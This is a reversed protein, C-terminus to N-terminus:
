WLSLFNGSSKKKLKPEQEKKIFYIGYSVSSYRDKRMNSKEKLKLYKGTIDMELEIIENQMLTTQVYPLILRVKEEENKLAFDQHETLYDEAEIENILFQTTHNELSAKFTFAIEANLEDTGNISYINQRAERYSCREAHKENNMSKFPPYKIDRQEDYTFNGLLDLIAIGANRTDLVIYNIDGDYWLRKIRLVQEEVKWGELSESYLVESVYKEGKPNAKIFTFISADNYVTSSSASTAIDCALVRIEQSSDRELEWSPHRKDKEEMFQLPTPPYWPKVIKRNSLIDNPMFFGKDNVNWFQANYETEFAMETMNKDERIKKVRADSLLGHYNALTYPLNCVFSEKGNLMEETIQEYLEYYWTNTYGASSLFVEANEEVDDASYKPNSLFGPQRKVNLFPELVRQITDLGDKILIYEDIILLNSRIGRTNKSANICTIKSGNKFEVYSENTGAKCEKIERRLNSSKFMLEGQIKETVIRRSMEKTECSITVKIGPYLVCKLCMFVALTYSKSLGRSCIFCSNINKNLMFLWIKQFTFLNIGDLFDDAFRHM